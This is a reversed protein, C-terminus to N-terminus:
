KVQPYVRPHCTFSHYRKGYGLAQTTRNESLSGDPCDEKGESSRKTHKTQNGETSQRQQYHPLFADPRYFVKPTQLLPPATIGTPTTGVRVTPAEAEM